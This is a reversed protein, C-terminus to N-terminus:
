KGDADSHILAARRSAEVNAFQQISDAAKQRMDAATFIAMDHQKSVSDLLNAIYGLILSELTSKFSDSLEVTERNAVAFPLYPRPEPMQQPPKTESM